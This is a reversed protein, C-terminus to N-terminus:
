APATWREGRLKTAGAPSAMCSSCDALRDVSCACAASERATSGQSSAPQACPSHPREHGPLAPCSHPPPEAETECLAGIACATLAGEEYEEGGEAGRETAAGTDLGPPVDADGEAGATTTAGITPVGVIPVGVIAVRAMPAVRGAVAPAGTATEGTM